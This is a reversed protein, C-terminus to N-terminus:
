RLTLSLTVPDSTDMSLLWVFGRSAQAYSELCTISPKTSIRSERIDYDLRCIQAASSFRRSGDKFVPGCFPPRRESVVVSVKRDLFRQGEFASRVNCNGRCFGEHRVQRMGTEATVSYRAASGASRRSANFLTRRPILRAKGGPYLSPM